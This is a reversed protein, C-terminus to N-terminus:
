DHLMNSLRTESAVTEADECFSRVASVRGSAQLLLFPLTEGGIGPGELFYSTLVCSFPAKLIESYFCLSHCKYLAQADAPSGSAVHGTVTPLVM